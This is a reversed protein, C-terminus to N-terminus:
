VEMLYSIEFCHEDTLYNESKTWSQVKDTLISEIKSEIDFEKLKTYLRINLTTISSYVIGDAYFGDVESLSYEIYAPPPADRGPYVLYASPLGIEEIMELIEDLNM